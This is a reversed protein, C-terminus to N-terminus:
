NESEWLGPYTRIFGNPQLYLPAAYEGDPSRYDYTEPGSRRYYQPLDRLAHTEPDFWLVTVDIEEGQKLGFRHIQSFNTAPTFGFDLDILQPFGLPTEGDYWDDERREIRWDVPDAGIHGQVAGYHPRWAADLGLEYSLAVPGEVGAFVAQGSLRFGSALTTLFAADHGPTDLRRWLSYAIIDM